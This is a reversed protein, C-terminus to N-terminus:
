RETEGTLDVAQDWTGWEAPPNISGYEDERIMAVGSLAPMGHEPAFDVPKAAFASKISDRLNLGHKRTTSLYSRIACFMRAGRESRFCGSVKQQVKIM